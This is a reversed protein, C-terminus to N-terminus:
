WSCHPTLAVQAQERHLRPLDEPHTPWWCCCTWYLIKPLGNYIM